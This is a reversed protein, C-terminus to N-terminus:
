RGTVERHNKACEPSGGRQMLLSGLGCTVGVAPLGGQNVRTHEQVSSIQTGQRYPCALEPFQLYLHKLKYAVKQLKMNSRLHHKLEWGEASNQQFMTTM